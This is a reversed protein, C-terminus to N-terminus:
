YLGGYETGTGWCQRWHGIYLSSYIIYVEWKNYCPLLMFHRGAEWAAINVLKLGLWFPRVM